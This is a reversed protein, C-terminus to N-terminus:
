TVAAIKMSIIFVGKRVRKEEIKSDLLKENMIFKIMKTNRNKRISSNTLIKVCREVENTGM